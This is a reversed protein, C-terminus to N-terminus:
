KWVLPDTSLTGTGEELLRMEATMIETQESDDDEENMSDLQESDDNVKNMGDKLSKVEAVLSVLQQHIDHNLDNNRTSRGLVGGGEHSEATESNVSSDSDSEGSSLMALNRVSTFTKKMASAAKAINENERVLRRRNRSIIAWLIAVAVGIFHVLFNGMMDNLGLRMSKPEKAKSSLENCKVDAISELYSDWARDIFGESRMEIMHLNVVDRLLNTCMTGSDSFTAFHGQQIKFARGMWRLNCGPNIESSREYESWGSATSLGILCEEKQLSIFVDRETPVRVLNIKQFASSVAVDMASTAM